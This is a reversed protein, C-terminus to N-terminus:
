RLNVAPGLAAVPAVVFQPRESTGPRRLLRVKVTRDDRCEVVIGVTGIMEANSSGVLITVPTGVSPAFARLARRVDEVESAAPIEPLCQLADLLRRVACELADNYAMTGTEARRFTIWPTTADWTM